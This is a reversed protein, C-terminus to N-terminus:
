HFCRLQHLFSGAIM